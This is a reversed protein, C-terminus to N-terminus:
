YIKLGAARLLDDEYLKWRKTDDIKFIHVERNKHYVYISHILSKPFVYPCFDRIFGKILAKDNRSQNINVAHYGGRYPVYLKNKTTICKRRKLDLIYINSIKVNNTYGGFFYIIKM